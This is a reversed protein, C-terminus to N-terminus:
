LGARCALKAVPLQQAFPPHRPDEPRPHYRRPAELPLDADLLNAGIGEVRIVDAEENALRLDRAAQVVLVDNRHDVEDLALTQEAHHELQDLAGIQPAQERM